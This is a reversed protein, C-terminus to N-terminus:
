GERVVTVQGTHLRCALSSKPEFGLTNPTDPFPTILLGPLLFLGQSFTPSLGLSCLWRCFVSAKPASPGAKYARSLEQIHENNRSALIEILCAEDTGAGQLPPSFVFRVSTVIGKGIGLFCLRPWLPGCCLCGWHGVRLRTSDISGLGLGLCAASISLVTILLFLTLPCGVSWSVILPSTVAWGCQAPDPHSTSEPRNEKLTLGHTLHCFLPFFPNFSSCASHVHLFAVTRLPGYPIQRYRPFSLLLHSM